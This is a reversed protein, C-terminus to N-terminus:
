SKPKERLHYINSLATWCVNNSYRNFTFFELDMLQKRIFSQTDHHLWLCLTGLLKLDFIRDLREM